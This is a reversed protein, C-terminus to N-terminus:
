PCQVIDGLRVTNVDLGVATPTTSGIDMFFIDHNPTDSWYLRRSVPAVRVHHPYSVALIREPDTFDLNSRYLADTAAWYVKLGIPDVAIGEIVQGVTMLGALQVYGTGDFGVRSVAQGEGMFLWGRQSDATMTLPSAGQHITQSSTLDDLSTRTIGMPGKWFINRGALDLALRPQFSATLATEVNSGDLNSRQVLNDTINAWYIKGGVPDIAVDLLSALPLTVLTQAGSGDLNSRVVFAGTRAVDITAYYMKASGAACCREDTLGNCDNDLGDCKTEAAEFGASSASCSWGSAGSCSAAFGSACVGVRSCAPGGIAGDDVTGNADNDIGDCIEVCALGENTQGDCDNDIADCLTETKEYLPSTYTCSWGSTGMCESDVGGACAGVTSCTTCEALDDDIAGSGDNDLGDCIEPTRFHEPPRLTYIANGPDELRLTDGSVCYPLSEGSALDLSDVGTTYPASASLRFTRDLTCFCTGGLCQPNCSASTLGASILNSELDGCRCGHCANPFDVSFSLAIELNVEATTADFTATGTPTAQFVSGFTAASCVARVNGFLRDEEVCVTEVEWVTGALDGGCGTVPTCASQVDVTRPVPAALEDRPTCTPGADVSGDNEGASGAAGGMASSGGAASGGSGDLASGGAGGAADSSSGSAGASGRSGKSGSEDGGCASFLTAGLGIAGLCTAATTWRM